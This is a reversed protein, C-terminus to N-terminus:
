EKPSMTQAPLSHLPAVARGVLRFSFSHIAGFDVFGEDGPYVTGRFCGVDWHCDPDALYNFGGKRFFAVRRLRENNEFSTFSTFSRGFGSDGRLDSLGGLLLREAGKEKGRVRRVGFTAEFPM